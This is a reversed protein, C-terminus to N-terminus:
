FQYGRSGDVTRFFLRAAQLREVDTPNPETVNVRQCLGNHITTDSLGEERQRTIFEQAEFIVAPDTKDFDAQKKEAVKERLDAVKRQMEQEAAKAESADALDNLTHLLFGGLTRVTEGVREADIGARGAVFFLTQKADVGADRLHEDATRVGDLVESIGDRVGSLHPTIDDAVGSLIGVFYKGGQMAMNIVQEASPGNGDNGRRDQEFGSM